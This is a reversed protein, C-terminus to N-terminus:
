HMNHCKKCAFGYAHYEKETKIYMLKHDNECKLTDYNM